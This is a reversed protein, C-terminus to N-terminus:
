RFGEVLMLDSGSRTVTTYLIIKGDPSVALSGRYKELVGVVSDKGSALDLRRLQADPGQDCAAYYVGGEVVAFGGWVCDLLRKEPGGALLHAFLPAWGGTKFFLTKGDLSEHGFSIERGAIHEETGGAAPIRWIGAKSAREAGFYVWRGDRSWSPLYEDGPDQTIRRPAGGEVDVTWINRRGDEDQSDYAIQRGDPSWAPSGQWRGPGRTLQVPNQGDADALWIEMREGSRMSEFALRRGDPSFQSNGDWYSSSAPFAEPGRGPTLRVIDQDYLWRTFALRNGWIAPSRGGMGAVELREPPRRGDADVRWLHFVGPGLETDYVLSRGDPAWAIRLIIFGQRTLRRPSGTPALDPGFDVVHVDCPWLPTVCAAYALRRGAPSLAPARDMGGQHARTLRRPEGGSVPVLYVGGAAPTTEASSVERGAAIWQGDPSWSMNGGSGGAVPLDSLKRDAGGLPSILHIAGIGSRSRRVFAIHRGDPSWTASRDAAPDTTLRHLESAGILKVYIDWNDGKEGNWSFAVQQGDPSFTAADEHGSLATLPVVRAPPLPTARSRWLWAAAASAILLVALGAVGWAARRKRAPAAAAAAAASDSEEKVEQLEVKVDLMNQFRRAPEKRLCRLIIRELDRPVEPALASPPKPQEKLLSALMDATSGGEFPRRGTVMEYLVAGFAFVDSRADVKGRSAQEPSMYAPTGVAAGPHSLRAQADLTTDDEGGGGDAQTLKALGFDLVKVVGEPTVM